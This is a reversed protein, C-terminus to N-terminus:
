DKPLFYTCMRQKTAQVSSFGLKRCDPEKENRGQFLLGGEKEQENAQSPQVKIM